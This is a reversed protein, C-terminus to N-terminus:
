VKIREILKNVLEEKSLRMLETTCFRCKMVKRTERKHGPPLPLIARRSTLSDPSERMEFGDEFTSGCLKCTTSILLYYPKGPISLAKPKAAQTKPLLGEVSLGMKKLLGMLVEKEKLQEPTMKTVYLSM